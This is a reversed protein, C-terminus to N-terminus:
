FELFYKLCSEVSVISISKASVALIRFVHGSQFHDFHAVICLTHGKSFALKPDFSLIEFFCEIFSEVHLCM